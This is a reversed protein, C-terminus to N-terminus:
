IIDWEIVCGVVPEDVRSVLLFYRNFILLSGVVLDKVILKIVEVREDVLGILINLHNGM